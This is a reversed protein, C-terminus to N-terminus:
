KKATLTNSDNKLKKYRKVAKHWEKWNTVCGNETICRLIDEGASLIEMKKQSQEISILLQQITKLSDSVQLTKFDLSKSSDYKITMIPHYKEDVVSIFIDGSRIDPKGTVNLSKKLSIDQGPSQFWVLSIITLTIIKKM